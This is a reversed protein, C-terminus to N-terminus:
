CLELQLYAILSSLGILMHNLQSFVTLVWAVQLIVLIFKVFYSGTRLHIEDSNVPHNTVFSIISSIGSCKKWIPFNGKAM